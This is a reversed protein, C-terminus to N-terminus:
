AGREKLQDRRILWRRVEDVTNAASLYHRPWADSGDIEGYLKTGERVVLHAEWDSRDCYLPRPFLDFVCEKGEIQWAGGKLAYSPYEESLPKWPLGARELAERMAVFRIGARLPEPLDFGTSVKFDEREPMEVQATNAQAEELYERISKTGETKAM